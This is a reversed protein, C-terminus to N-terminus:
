QIYGLAKLQDVLEETFEEQRAVHPKLNKMFKEAMLRSQQLVAPEKEVLNLAEKPNSALNFLLERDQEM